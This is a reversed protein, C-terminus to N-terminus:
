CPVYKLTIRIKDGATQTYATNTVLVCQITTVGTALKITKPLKSVGDGPTAETYTAVTAGKAVSYPFPIVGLFIDNDAKVPNTNTANDRLEGAPTSEFMLLDYQVSQNETENTLKAGIIEAYGGADCEVLDFEWAIALTTCCDDEGVVDGALYAGLSADITQEAVAEYALEKVSGLLNTGAPLAAGIDVRNTTGPTTQDIGVSGILNAGAALTMGNELTWTAGGNHTVYWLGTDYEYARSGYALGSAPKTDTSAGIWTTIGLKGTSDYGIQVFAAM